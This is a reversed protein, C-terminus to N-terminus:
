APCKAVDVLTTHLSNGDKNLFEYSLEIQAKVMKQRDEARLKCTTAMNLADLQAKMADDLQPVDAKVFQMEILLRNGLVKVPHIKMGPNGTGGAIQKNIEQALQDPTVRESRSKQIGWVALLALAVLGFKVIKM